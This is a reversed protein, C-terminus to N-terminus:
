LENRVPALTTPGTKKKSAMRIEKYDNFICFFLFLYWVDTWTVSLSPEFRLPNSYSRSKLRLKKSLKIEVADLGDNATLDSRTRAASKVSLDSRREEGRSAHLTIKLDHFISFM